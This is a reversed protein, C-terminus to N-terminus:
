CGSGPVAVVEGTPTIDFLASETRLFDPVLDAESVPLSGKLIEYSSVALEIEQRETVCAVGHANGGGNAPVTQGPVTSDGSIAEAGKKVLGCASLTMVSAALSAAVALVGTKM